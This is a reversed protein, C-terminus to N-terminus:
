DPTSTEEGDNWNDRWATLKAVVHNALFKERSEATNFTEPPLIHASVSNAWVRCQSLTIKAIKDVLEDFSAQARKVRMAELREAETESM